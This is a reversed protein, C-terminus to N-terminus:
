RSGPAPRGGALALATAKGIGGIGGTVLVAKGAMPATSPDVM